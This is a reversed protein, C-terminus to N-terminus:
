LFVERFISRTGQYLSLSVREIDSVDMSEITENDIKPLDDVFYVKTLLLM